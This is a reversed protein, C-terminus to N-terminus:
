ILALLDDLMVVEMETVRRLRSDNTVFATAGAVLCAALQLADAPNVRHLARLEAARRSVVRDIDVISLGAVQALNAEYSAAIAPQGLRLPQVTLEMLSLVSTVARLSGAILPTFILTTVDAYPLINELHYIFVSTDIGLLQHRSLLQDIGAM